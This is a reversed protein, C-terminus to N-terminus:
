GDPMDKENESHQPGPLLMETHRLLCYCESSALGRGTFDFTLM